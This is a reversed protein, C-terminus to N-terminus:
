KMKTHEKRGKASCTRISRHEHPINTHVSLDAPLCCVAPLCDIVKRTRIISNFRRLFVCFQKGEEAMCRRLEEEEEEEEEEAEKNQQQQQQADNIM